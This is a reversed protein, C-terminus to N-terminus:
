RSSSDGELIQRVLVRRFFVDGVAGGIALIAAIEQALERWAPIKPPTTNAILKVATRATSSRTASGAVSQAAKHLDSYDNDRNYHEPEAPFPSLTGGNIYHLSRM